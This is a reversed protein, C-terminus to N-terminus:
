AGDKNAIKPSNSFLPAVEKMKKTKENKDFVSADLPAEWLILDNEGTPGIKRAGVIGQLFVAPKDGHTCFLVRKTRPFSCFLAKAIGNWRKEPLTYLSDVYLVEPGDEFPKYQIFGVIENEDSVFKIKKEKLITFLKQELQTTVLIKGDVQINTMKELDLGNVEKWYRSFIPWFYPYHIAHAYQEITYDM